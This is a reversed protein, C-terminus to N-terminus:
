QAGGKARRGLPEDVEVISKISGPVRYSDLAEATKELPYRATVMGDLDVRESRVLEIATPWTNAYRFVGTLMLERNQILQVPLEMM